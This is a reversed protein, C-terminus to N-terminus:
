SLEKSDIYKATLRLCEEVAQDNTLGEYKILLNRVVEALANLTMAKANYTEMSEAPAPMWINM